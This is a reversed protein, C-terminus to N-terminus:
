KKGGLGMADRGTLIAQEWEGVGMVFELGGVAYVKARKGGALKKYDTVLDALYYGPVQQIQSWMNQNQKNETVVAAGVEDEESVVDAPVCYHINMGVSGDVSYKTANLLLILERAM